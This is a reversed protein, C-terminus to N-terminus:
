YWDPRLAPIQSRLRLFFMRIRRMKTSQSLMINISAATKPLGRRQAESAADEWIKRSGRPAIYRLKAVPVSEAFLHAFDKCGCIHLEAQTRICKVCLGCNLTTGQAIFDKSVCVRFNDVFSPYTRIIIDLKQIRNFEFGTIAFQITATSLTPEVKPHSAVREMGESYSSPILLKDARPRLALGIACLMHGFWVDVGFDQWAVGPYEKIHPLTDELINTSVPIVNKEFNAAVRRVAQHAADWLAENKEPMEFGRIHILSDIQENHTVLTQWSDVGCSFLACCTNSSQPAPDTLEIQHDPEHLRPHWSRMLPVTNAMVANYIDASVPADMYLNEGLAMAVLVQNVFFSDAPCPNPANTDPYRIHLRETANEREYLM